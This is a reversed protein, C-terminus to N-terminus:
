PKLQQRSNTGLSGFTRLHDKNGSRQTTLMKRLMSIYITLNKYKFYFETPPFPQLLTHNCIIPFVNLLTQNFSDTQHNCRTNRVKHIEQYNVM